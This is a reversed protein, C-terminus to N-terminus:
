YFLLNVRSGLGVREEIVELLRLLPQLTERMDLIGRNKQDVYSADVVIMKLNQISLAGVEILDLIRSPTGVGIAM